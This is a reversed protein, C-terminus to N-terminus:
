EVEKLAEKVIAKLEDLTFPKLLYLRGSQELFSMTRSGLVSGTTFIVRRVLQPHKKELWHYLERGDVLPLRLDFLLLDYQYREIMYQAQKGNDTIDVEFGEGSLVRLCIANIAPEDEVM